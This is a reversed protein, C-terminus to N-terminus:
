EPAVWLARVPPVDLDLKEWSDAHDRSLYLEGNGGSGSHHPLPRAAGRAVNGFGAFVGDPDDPHPALAWVMAAHTEAFGKDVGVRHWSEAGDFSRFLAARANGPRDWYLPSQDATTCLMTPNKGQKASPMFMFNHFYDRTFGNEARTWGSTPDDSTFFGRATSAYYRTTSHPLSKVQHIDLYDIGRSVDEWTRGGDLTRVIGGHEISLYITKSDDPHVFINTIHPSYPPMIFWWKKKVSEPQKDRPVVFTQYNRIGQSVAFAMLSSMEEWSDGGDESRWLHVPETGAYVVDDSAPDVAVSRVDGRLVKIWGKGADDTRYVGDHAVGAFVREPRKACGSLADLIGEPFSHSIRQWDGSASRYVVVGGQCGAYLRIADSM